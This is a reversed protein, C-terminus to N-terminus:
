VVQKLEGLNYSVTVKSDMKKRNRLGTAAEQSVKMLLMM